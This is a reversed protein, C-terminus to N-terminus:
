GRRKPGTENGEPKIQMIQRTSEDAPFWLEMRLSALTVDQPIAFVSQITFFAMTGLPSDFVLNLYPDADGRTARAPRPGFRAIMSAEVEDSRPGLSPRVWRENRLQDLLAGGGIWPDRMQCFLGGPHILADIMSFGGSPDELEALFGPLNQAILWQASRNALHAHWDADFVIGAYPEHMDLTRQLAALGGALRPDGLSFESYAPAYGAQHLAANRLSLPADTERTWNEILDRSPRARGGEIFSVHRQSVNLRLALELQSVGLRERVQKLLRGVHTNM